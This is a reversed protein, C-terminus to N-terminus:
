RSEDVKVSIELSIEYGQANDVSISYEGEQISIIQVQPSPSVSLPHFSQNRLM